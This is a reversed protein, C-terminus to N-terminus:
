QPQPICWNLKVREQLHHSFVTCLIVEGVRRPFYNRKPCLPSTQLQCWSWHIYHLWSLLHYTTTKSYHYIVHWVRSPVTSVFASYPKHFLGVPLRPSPTSPPPLLLSLAILLFPWNWSGASRCRSLHLTRYTSCCCHIKCLSRLSSCALVRHVTFPLEAWTFLTMHFFVHFRLHNISNTMMRLTLTHPPM